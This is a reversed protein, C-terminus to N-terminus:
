VPQFRQFLESPYGANGGPPNVLFNGFPTAQLCTALSRALQQTCTPGSFGAPAFAPRANTTRHRWVSRHGRCHELAAGLQVHHEAVHAAWLGDPDIGNINVQHRIDYSARGWDPTSITRIRRRASSRESQCPRVRLVRVPQIRSNIRSNVNFILQNQKYIGDSEYLDYVGAAAGLPYVGTGPGFYTPVPPLPTNIDVTRLMHTGRSNIYNVSLTTNKPLQRDFGIAAQQM